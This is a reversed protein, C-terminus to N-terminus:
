EKKDKTKLDMGKNSKCVSPNNAKMYYAFCYLCGFSCFNYLDFSLPTSCDMFESSIRPSNYFSKEKVPKDRNQELWRLAGKRIEEEM